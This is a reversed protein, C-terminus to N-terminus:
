NQKLNFLSIIRHSLTKGIREVECYFDDMDKEDIIQPLIDSFESTELIGPDSCYTNIDILIHTFNQNYLWNERINERQDDSLREGLNSEIVPPPREGLNSEILWTPTYTFHRIMDRLRSASKIVDEIDDSRYPVNEPAAIDLFLNEVKSLQEQLCDGLSLDALLENLQSIIEEENEIIGEVDTVDAVLEQFAPLANNIRRNCALLRSRFFETTQQKLQNLALGRQAIRSQDRDILRLTRELSVFAELDSYLRNCYDRSLNQPQTEEAIALMGVLIRNIVSFTRLIQNLLEQKREQSAADTEFVIQLIRQLDLILSSVSLSSEGEETESDQGASLAPLENEIATLRNHTIGDIIDGIEDNAEFYDSLKNFNYINYIRLGVLNLNETAPRSRLFHIAATGSLSINQQPNELAIERPEVERNNNLNIFALEWGGELDIQSFRHHHRDFRFWPVDLSLDSTASNDSSGDLDFMDRFTDIDRGVINETEPMNQLLDVAPRNSISYRSERNELRIENREVTGNNNLDTIALEWGDELDIQLFSHKHRDDNNARTM